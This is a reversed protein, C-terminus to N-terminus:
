KRADGALSQPVGIGEEPPPTLDFGQEGTRSDVTRDYAAVCYGGETTFQDTKKQYTITYAWPKTLADQAAVSTDVTLTDPASLRMREVVHMRGGKLAYVIENSPRIGITDVVLTDGEWRGISEGSYSDFLLEDATHARGDVRINRIQIGRSGALIGIRGPTYIFEIGNALMMYPMGTPICRSENAPLAGGTARIQNLANSKARWANTLPLSDGRFTGIDGSAALAPSAAISWLGGDWRPTAADPTPATPTCAFLATSLVVLLLRAIV